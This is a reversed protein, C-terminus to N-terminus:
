KDEQREFYRYQSRGFKTYLRQFPRVDLKDIFIQIGQYEGVFEVETDLLNETGDGPYWLEGEFLIPEGKRIWEAESSPIPYIQEQKFTHSASCGTSILIVTFICFFKFYKLNQGAEM